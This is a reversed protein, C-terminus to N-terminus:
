QALPLVEAGCLIIHKDRFILVSLQKNSKCQTWALRCCHTPLIRLSVLQCNGIPEASVIAATRLFELIEADRSFPLAAGDPGLWTRRESPLRETVPQPRFGSETITAPDPSTAAALPTGAGAWSALLLLLILARM